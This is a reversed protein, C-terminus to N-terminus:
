ILDGRSHLAEDVIAVVKKPEFLSKILYFDVNLKGVKRVISRDDVNTMIIIPINRLDKNGRIARVLEVGDMKPMLIDVLAIDPRENSIVRFGDEGDIATVVSFGSQELAVRYIERISAEDDVVCVKKKVTELM